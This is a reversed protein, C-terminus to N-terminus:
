KGRTSVLYTAEDLDDEPIFGVFIFPWGHTAILHFVLWGFTADSVEHLSWLVMEVRCSSQFAILLLFFGM